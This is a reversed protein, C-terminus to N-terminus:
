AAEQGFAVHGKVAWTPDGISGFSVFHSEVFSAPTPLIASEEAGLTFTAANNFQNQYRYAVRAASEASLTLLTEDYDSTTPSGFSAITFSSGDAPISAPITGVFSVATQLVGDIYLKCRTANTAQTGDYVLDYEHWADDSPPTFVGTGGGVGPFLGNDCNIGFNGRAVVPGHSQASLRKMVASLTAAQAGDLTGISGLNVRGLTSNIRLGNAVQAAILSAASSPVSGNYNGRWDLFQPQSGAPDEELPLYFLCNSDHV